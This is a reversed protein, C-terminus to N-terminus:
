LERAADTNWIWCFIFDRLRSSSVFVRSSPRMEKGEGRGEGAPLPLCKARPDFFPHAEVGVVAKKVGSIGM